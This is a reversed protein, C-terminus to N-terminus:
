CWATATFAHESPQAVTPLGVLKTEDLLVDARVSGILLPAITAASLLLKLLVSRM